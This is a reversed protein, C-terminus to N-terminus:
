KVLRRCLRLSIQNRDPQLFAAVSRFLPEINEHHYGVTVNLKRTATLPVDHLIMLSADLYRADRTAERVAVVSRDQFLLSTPITLILAYFPPNRGTSNDALHRIV